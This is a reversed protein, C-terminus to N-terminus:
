SYSDVASAIIQRVDTLLRLEDARTPATPVTVPPFIQVLVDGGNIRRSKKPLITGTGKLAL